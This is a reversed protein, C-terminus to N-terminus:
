NVKCAICNKASTVCRVCSIDCTSCITGAQYTGGPCSNYCKNGVQFTNVPCSAVCNNTDIYLFANAACTVCSSTLGLCTACIPDCNVCAFNVPTTGVPCTTICQNNFLYGIKCSLCDNSSPGQCTTCLANCLVCLPGLAFTGAPCIAVCKTGSM